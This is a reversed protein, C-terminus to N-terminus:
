VLNGILRILFALGFVVGLLICWEVGSLVRRDGVNGDNVASEGVDVNSVVVHSDVVESEGFPMAIDHAMNGSHFTKDFHKMPFHTSVRPAVNLFTTPSERRVAVAAPFQFVNNM